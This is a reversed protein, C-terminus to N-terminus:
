LPKIALRMTYDIRNLLLPANTEKLYTDTAERAGRWHGYDDIILVGGPVLLPYLHKLEHYTSEYFDTDLRLIAISNPLTAPITDEVKGKVFHFRDPPYGTSFVNGRVIDLSGYNWDSHGNTRNQNEARGSAPNDWLDVDKASPEPMGEFTDYLYIERTPDGAQLLTLSALVMSGGLWVGAEVIDGAIQHKVVYHVSKYLAYAREAGSGAFPAYKEFVEFFEPEMERYSDRPSKIRSIKYGARTLTNSLALKLRPTM